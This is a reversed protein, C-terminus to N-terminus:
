GVLARRISELVGDLNGLAENNWFRIVRYGESELWRTRKADSDQRVAHQGGDIELILKKELCVFDVYYPGIPAQRRFRFGELQKRRLKSWLCIEADTPNSRLQRARTTTM